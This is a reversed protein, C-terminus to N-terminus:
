RMITILAFYDNRAQLDNRVNWLLATLLSGLRDDDAHCEGETAQLDVGLSLHQICRVIRNATQEGRTVDDTQEEV